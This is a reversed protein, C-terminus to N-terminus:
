EESRTDMVELKLIKIAATMWGKSCTFSPYAPLM